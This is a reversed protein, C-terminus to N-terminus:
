NKTAQAKTTTMTLFGNDFGFDHFNIGINKGLLKITKARVNHDKTWKSNTKSYLTFYSDLKM